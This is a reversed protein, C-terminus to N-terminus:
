IDMSGAISGSCSHCYLGLADGGETVFNTPQLIPQDGRVSLVKSISGISPESVDALIFWVSPICGFISVTLVSCLSLKFDLVYFITIHKFTSRFIIYSFVDQMKHTSHDAITVSLVCCLYTNDIGFKYTQLLSVFWM